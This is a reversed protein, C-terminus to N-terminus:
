SSAGTNVSALRLLMHKEFREYLERPLACLACAAALTTLTKKPERMTMQLDCVMARLSLWLATRGSRMRAARRALYRLQFAESLRAWKAHFSPATAKVKASMRKWSEFQKLINASLGGENVRYFTLVEDIGEFAWNTTLAIRMWCEIDESQRFSEDFWCEERIGNFYTIAELTERRIVPASGNGIPNRLFIDENRIHHLKPSQVVGIPAGNDDVLASAAYSVGVHACRELHAVHVSLKRPAWLDDSDIFAIYKGKANRIGTNRAGALGRNQQSIIRIRPDTFLRCIEISADAGGDDVVLLEFDSFSQDLVSCIADAVYAEVNYVPMIVSITPNM